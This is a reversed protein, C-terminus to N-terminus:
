KAAGGTWVLEPVADSGCWLIAHQEFDHALAMASNRAIGPVLVGAEEPWGGDDAGASAPLWPLQRRELEGVLAEARERNTADSLKRSAPNYATIFAASVCGRRQLLDALARSTEDVRLEFSGAGDDVRYWARRYAQTLQDREARGIGIAAGSM